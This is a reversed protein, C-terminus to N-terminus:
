LLTATVSSAIDYKSSHTDMDANSLESKEAALSGDTFESVVVGILPAVEEPGF